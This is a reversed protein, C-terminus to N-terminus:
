LSASIVYEVEEDTLEVNMPLSCVERSIDETVPFGRDELKLEGHRYYPKRFQTLVEVGNKKMLFEVGKVLRTVIRDKRAVTKKWNITLAKKDIGDIGFSAAKSMKAYLKATEIFTKSPICGWNLCMGGM